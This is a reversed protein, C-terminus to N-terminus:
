QAVVGAAAALPGLVSLSLRYRRHQEKRHGPGLVSPCNNSAPGPLKRSPDAGRRASSITTQRAAPTGLSISLPQETLGQQHRAIEGILLRLEDARLKDSEGVFGYFILSYSHIKKKGQVEEGEGKGKEKEEYAFRVLSCYDRDEEMSGGFAVCYYIYNM